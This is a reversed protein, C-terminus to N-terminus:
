VAAEGYVGRYEGPLEAAIARMITDSYDRLQLATPAGAAFTIPPGLRVRVPARRLRRWSDGLREQGWTAMPVVPVGARGALYGVGTHARALGGPSRHGEPGLAVIGGARLVALAQDLADQDGEGRRVYIAHGVDSLLWDVLRWRRLEDKALMIAPRPLVALALPIDMASLHNVALIAAGTAPIRDLGEVRLETTVRLVATLGSRIFRQRKSWRGRDDPKEEVADHNGAGLPVTRILLMPAPM